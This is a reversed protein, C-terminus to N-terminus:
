LKLYELLEKPHSIILEAGTELLEKETRFGWLVGVPFMGASIATLMDTATDGVYLCMAPELGLRAALDLATKPDPKNPLHPLAGQVIEFKSNPFFHSVTIQTNKDPKNSLVALKLGAEKLGMLLEQIGDYPRTKDAQRLAYEEKVKATFMEKFETNQKGKKDPPLSRECLKEVGEGIFYKYEELSHEPLDLNRLAYNVAGAIDHLTNLLTGDLDFIVAKFKM